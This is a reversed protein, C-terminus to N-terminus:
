TFFNFLFCTIAAFLGYSLENGTEVLRVQGAVRLRGRAPERCPAEIVVHRSQLLTVRVQNAVLEHLPFKQCWDFARIRSGILGYYYGKTRDQVTESINWSKHAASGV